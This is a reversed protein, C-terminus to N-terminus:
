GAYLVQLTACQVKHQHSSRNSQCLGRGPFKLIQMFGRKSCVMGVRLMGFSKKAQAGYFVFACQATDDAIRLCFQDKQNLSLSM